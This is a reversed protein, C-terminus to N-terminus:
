FPESTDDATFTDRVKIPPGAKAECTFLKPPNYGKKKPEGLAHHTLRIKAGVTAVNATKLAERVVTYMNGKVWLTHDAVGDEDTDLDFVWVKREDNNDWRQIVGDIDKDVVQRADLIQGTVKDGVNPFKAAPLSDGGALFPDTTTM